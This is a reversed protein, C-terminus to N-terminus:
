NGWRESENARSSSRDIEGIAEDILERACVLAFDHRWGRSRARM